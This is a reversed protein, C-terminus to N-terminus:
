HPPTSHHRTSGQRRPTADHRRPATLVEPLWLVRGCAAVVSCSVGRCWAAGRSVVVCCWAVGGHSAVVGRWSAAFSQIQDGFSVVKVIKTLRVRKVSSVKTTVSQHVSVLPRLGLKRGDCRHCGMFATEMFASEASGIHGSCQLRAEGPDASRVSVMMM